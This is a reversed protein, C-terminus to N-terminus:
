AYSTFGSLDVTSVAYTGAAPDGASTALANMAATIEATIEAYCTGDGAHWYATLLALDDNVPVFVPGGSDGGVIPSYFRSTDLVTNLGHNITQVSLCLDTDNLEIVENISIQDASGGTSTHATKTLCPLKVTKSDASGYPVERYGTPLYARWDPPLFKFPQIGTVDRDLYAVQVDSYGSYRLSGGVHNQRSVVNATVFSGDPRMFVVVSGPPFHTAGIIHRPSILMGPHVYGGSTTGNIVSIASLDLTGTFVGPNRAVAPSALDYNNSTFLNKTANSADKGSVMSLMKQTIHHGLTGEIYSQFYNAPQYTGSAVMTREVARTGLPPPMRVLIKAYGDAVRTVHGVSDVTATAPTASEFTPVSGFVLSPIINIIFNNATLSGTIEAFNADRDVFPASSPNTIAPNEVVGVSYDQDRKVGSVAVGDAAFVIQM